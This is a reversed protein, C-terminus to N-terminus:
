STGKLGMSRVCSQSDQTQTSQIMIHGSANSRGVYKTKWLKFKDFTESKHRIFYVWVKQSYDDIFSVFYVSGGLSATQVPGWVDTHVYDLIWKKKHTTTKFQVKNQKRFVCYKCFKLKCTKIGKLLKRKHLEMMGREGMHRLQM